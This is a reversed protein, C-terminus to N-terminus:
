NRGLKAAAPIRQTRVWLDRGDSIFEVDGNLDTRFIGPPSVVQELQTVVDRHPHGYRNDGGASIVALMPNVRRLFAPSSSTRSGHHAVKLVTSQLEQVQEVMRAETEAEIDSSLLYSVDGHVLRLVVADNNPSSSTESSVPLPNLVELAVGPELEVRYGQEVVVNDIGQRELSASWELQMAHNPRDAGSLVAGVRFRELIELLGRSHDDDLHSLVVLDLSRDVPSLVGDLAQVGSEADPGGDVLVQRGTPTIILISDGQGVDFFYVHLKDDPGSFVQHWLFLAGSALVLALVLFGLTGTTSPGAASSRAALNRGWAHAQGTLLRVPGRVGTVFLLGGLVLYWAWIFSTGIWSGAVTPSPFYEVVALLYAIPAWSFWGAIQGLAPNALGLVATALSGLLILPLVPLVLINTLIGLLPIRDFNIAVLPWTALTAAASVVLGMFLWKAGYWGQTEWWGKPSQGRDPNRESIRALLPQALIIGALSAFSLQFSVQELVRPNIGVMLAAAFALAPLASRPRGLALAALYVSGMVAARVVSVPLGSILAYLWISALALVLYGFRRRGLLRAGVWLSMMLLVGVHLGSIALLHATGTERFNEEMEEPLQGRLGLLLARALASHSAPLAVELRESLERRLDFIVGRVTRWPTSGGPSVSKVHSSWVIGTIGQSNLYAPYDFDEVPEPLQLSGELVLRDGFQFYNGERIAVLSPPPRAYVLAKGTQPTMGSGRDIHDVELVFKVSRATAQPDDIIRGTLAVRQSEVVALPAPPMGAVEVRLLGLLLIGALVAPWPFRWTIQLMLALLLTAVCLLLIPLPAVETRLGLYVGALWAATLSELKM